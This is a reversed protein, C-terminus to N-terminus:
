GMVKYSNKDIDIIKNKQNEEKISNIKLNNKIKEKIESNELASKIAIEILRSFM